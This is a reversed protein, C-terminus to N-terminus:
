WITLNSIIFNVSILAFSSATLPKGKVYNLSDLIVVNTNTLLREAAAKLSGRAIIECKRDSYVADRVISGDDILHIDVNPKYKLLIEKLELARKTKGASPFGCMLVLPM